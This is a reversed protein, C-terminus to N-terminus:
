FWARFPRCTAHMYRVQPKGAASPEVAVISDATFLIDQHSVVEGGGRFMMLGSDEDDEALSQFCRLRCPPLLM